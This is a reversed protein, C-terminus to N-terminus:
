LVDNRISKTLPGIFADYLRTVVFAAAVAGIMYAYCWDSNCKFYLYFVAILALIYVVASFIMSGQGNVCHRGCAKCVAGRTHLGGAFAKTIPNFTKEGCHPCTYISTHQM